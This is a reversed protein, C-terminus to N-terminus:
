SKGGRSKAEFFERMSQEGDNHGWADRMYGAAELWVKRREDARIEAERDAEPSPAPERSGCIPCGKAACAGMVKRMGEVQAQLADIENCAAKLTEPNAWEGERIKKTDFNM